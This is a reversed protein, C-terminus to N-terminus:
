GDSDPKTRGALQEAAATTLQAPAPRDTVSAWLLLENLAGARDVGHSYDLGGSWSQLKAKKVGTFATNSEEIFPPPVVSDFPALDAATLKSPDSVSGFLDYLPAALQDYASMPQLGLILEMTRLVSPQDFQQHSVYGPTGDSTAHKAWPSMVM